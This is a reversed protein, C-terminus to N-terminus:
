DIHCTDGAAARRIFRPALEGRAKLRGAIFHAAMLGLGLGAFMALLTLGDSGALSQVVVGAGLALTLPIAYATLSAKILAGDHVGVVIREGVVLGAAPNDLPFRRAEIRRAISGIGKAGCMAASACGGCSTSQEPELWIVDGEVKVIRAIGEVAPRGPAARPLAQSTRDSSLIPMQTM